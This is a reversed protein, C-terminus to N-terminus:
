RSRFCARYYFNLVQVKKTYNKSKIDPTSKILNPNQEGVIVQQENIFATNKNEPTQDEFLMKKPQPALLFPAKNEIKEEGRKM